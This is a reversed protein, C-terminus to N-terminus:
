FYYGPRFPMAGPPPATLGPPPGTATSFRPVGVVGFGNPSNIPSNPSLPSAPHMSGPQGSRVGLPNKSFSLRIGGRVSNSLQYGYLENLARTALTIDEFEVFCIPGNHKNRFIMRKYGRQRQFLAKLEDEQTDPPLNGVYLTNCPPNQDAPNVPPYNHRPTPPNHARGLGMIPVNPSVTSAASAASNVMSTKGNGYPYNSPSTLNTALSLNPMQPLAVPNTPRRSLPPPGSVPPDSRGYTVADRLLEGTDEDGDQNIVSKGTVRPRDTLGNSQSAFLSDLVSGSDPAPLSTINSGAAVGNTAAGQELPSRLDGHQSSLLTSLSSPAVQARTGFYPMQDLTNRRSLTSTNPFNTILEVIMTAQGTPNPKGNLMTQAEEAARRTHFLAMAAAFGADQPYDNHILEVDVLDKAFLLMTRLVERSTNLPLRRMVIAAVGQPLGNGNVNAQQQQSDFPLQGIPSLSSAFGFSTSLPSSVQQSPGSGFM